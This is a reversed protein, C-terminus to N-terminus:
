LESVRLADTSTQQMNSYMLEAQAMAFIKEMLAKKALSRERASPLSVSPRMCPACSAQSIPETSLRRTTNIYMGHSPITTDYVTVAHVTSAISQFTVERCM